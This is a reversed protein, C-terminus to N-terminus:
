NKHQAETRSELFDIFKILVVDEEVTIPPQAEAVKILLTKFSEALKPTLHDDGLHFDHIGEEILTKVPIGDYKQFYQFAIELLGLDVKLEEETQKVCDKLQIFENRTIEGDAKAVALAIKGIGYYMNEHIEM